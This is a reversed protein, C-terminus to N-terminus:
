KKSSTNLSWLSKKDTGINIILNSMRLERLLNYVKNEKQKEDLIDPLKNWLLNRIEEKTAKKNKTIFEIILKHYYEKDFGKNKIYHGIQETKIALNESIIFNPKRGEILNRKRLIEIEYDNIEKRKQVKDLMIIENLLLDPNKALVKAYEIDLVKGILTLKVKQDDFNFDPMPFYKARQNYFMRKIGSGITDIMNLNVMAQVLFSNRYFVPPQDSELVNAVSGPLFSGANSFILQEDELEVVNIRGSLAYDQHAICNSLAEKIDRPEYRNVEEPFLTFGTIYRYKLNRIKAFVDDLALLLPCSFHAYDKEINNLNKLVWTIRAIAPAIYHESEPKGLLLIATNTITGNITLKAKNLFTTDDWADIEHAIRPNKVKFNKRAVEIAYSDLDAISASQCIGMSWDTQTIQRRIREIEEINLPGVSEGDRGFFFGEFATPIGKPAPPIQFLIVRGKPTNLEYIEIYTLRNNVKEAIEHKLRDLEPRSKRYESGVIQKSNNVGFVLWASAKNQLNAENSLASFYKGLDKFDFNNKAQKFEVVENEAPLNLLYELLSHIQQENM